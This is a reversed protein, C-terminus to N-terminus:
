HASKAIKGEYPSPMGIFAAEATIELSSFQNWAKIYFFKWAPLLHRARFTSRVLGILSRSSMRSVDSHELVKNVKELDHEDFANEVITMVERAAIRGRGAADFAYVADLKAEINAVVVELATSSKSSLLGIRRNVGLAVSSLQISGCGYTLEINQDVSSTSQIFWTKSAQKENLFFKDAVASSKETKALLFEELRHEFFGLPETSCQVDTWDLAIM